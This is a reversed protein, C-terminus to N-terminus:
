VQTKQSISAASKYIEVVFMRQFLHALLLYILTGSLVLLVLQLPLMLGSLFNLGVLLIAAMCAASILSPGLAAALDKMFPGIIRRFMLFYGAIFLVVQLFVLAWTVNIMSGSRAALYLIPPSFMLVGVNWYFTWHVYGKAVFLNAAANGYSRILAYLALVQVLPVVASWQRGLLVPIAIPAVVVIGMFVPANIFILLKLMKIFGRRLRPLDDQMQSFAPFAVRTIIPNLKSIPQITIKLALNYYGLMQPGMLGGILIQDMRTTFYNLAMAGLRYLGFRLYSGLEFSSFHWIPIIRTRFAYFVCIFTQVMTGSLLGWVFAWVGAKGLWASLIVVLASIFSSAVDVLFVSDFDLRKRMIAQFQIGFASIVLSIGCVRLVLTLQPMRVVYAVLPAAAYLTFCAVIGCAVNVWYLSALAERTPGRHQIIAESLNMEACLQIFGLVVLVMAMLGFVDPGLLRALIVLQLCQIVTTLITTATTFKIGRISKVKLNDRM